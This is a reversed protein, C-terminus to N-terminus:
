YKDNEINEKVQHENNYDDFLNKKLLDIKKNKFKIFIWNPHNISNLAKEYFIIMIGFFLKFLVYSKNLSYWAFLNNLNNHTLILCWTLIAYIVSVFADSLIILRSNGSVEFYYVNNFMINIFMYIAYICSMGFGMDWLQKYTFETLQTKNNITAQYTWYEYPHNIGGILYMNLEYSIILVFFFLCLAIIFGWWFLKKTNQKADYIENLGLPISLFKNTILGFGNFFIYLYTSYQTCLLIIQHYIKQNQENLGAHPDIVGGIQSFIDAIAWISVDLMIWYAYIFYFKVLKWNISWQFKRLFYFYNYAINREKIWRLKHDNISLKYINPLYCYGFIIIIQIVYWFDYIIAYNRVINIAENINEHKNLSASYSGLVVLYFIFGIVASFCQIWILNLSSFSSIFYWDLMYFIISIASWSLFKSGYILYSDSFGFLNKEFNQSYITMFITIVISIMLSFYLIDKMIENLKVLDKKAILNGVISFGAIVFVVSLIDIYSFGFINYNYINSLTANNNGFINNPVVSTIFVTAFIPSLSVFIAWLFAPLAIKWYSRIFTKDGFYNVLWNDKKSFKRSPM